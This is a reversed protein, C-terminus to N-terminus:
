AHVSDRPQSLRDAYWGFGAALERAARRAAMPNRRYLPSSAGDTLFDRLVTMSIPSVDVDMDLLTHRIRTLDPYVEAVVRPDRLPRFARLGGRLPRQENELRAIGTALTVRERRSTPDRHFIM